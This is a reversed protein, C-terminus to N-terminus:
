SPCTLSLQGFDIEIDFRLIKVIHFDDLRSETWGHLVAYNPWEVDLRLSERESDDFTFRDAATNTKDSSKIQIQDTSRISHDDTPEAM